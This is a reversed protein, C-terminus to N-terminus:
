SLESLLYGISTAVATPARLIPTPFHILTVNKQSSIQQEEDPSFGGEPGILIVIKSSLNTRQSIKKNSSAEISSFYFLPSDLATLFNTLELQEHIKPWFLNNSQIMASEILRDFRENPAYKMQSFKSSLPFIESVGLEVAMKLIEEFADKKPLALGLCFQHKQQESFIKGTKIIVEKKSISEIISISKEGMGNILLIEDGVKVRVVNLHHASEGSIVVLTTESLKEKQLLARM